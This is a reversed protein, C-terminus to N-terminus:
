SVVIVNVINADIFRNNYLKDVHIVNDGESNNLKLIDAPLNRFPRKIAAKKM